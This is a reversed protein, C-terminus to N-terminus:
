FVMQKKITSKAQKASAQVLPVIEKIPGEIEDLIANVRRAVKNLETITDNFTLM